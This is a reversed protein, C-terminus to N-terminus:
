FSWAVSFAGRVQNRERSGGSDLIQAFDLRASLSRMFGYRAGLGWSSLGNRHVEGPLPNVRWTTGSDYFSLLRLNGGSLGLTTALEPTYIEISGSLGRDDALERELFGRVSYMGGIGFQEGSVLMDDTYQGNFLGRLQFDGPLAAVANAGYRLVTYRSDAGARAAQFAAGDGNKGGPINHAVQLYFGGEAQAARLTGSYTLGVPHLTIDPVVGAGDLLVQNDFARYDLSASLKQELAGWRPLYYSWRAGLFKGSGSVNFLGQVVGSNVDSYGAAMELASNLEYFPIRYGLGVITVKSIETPSGVIQASISHDSDFLNSNQYGFRLRYDGTASTGTNDLAITFRSPDEEVVRVTADIRDETQGARLLVEIRKSPDESLMQLNRAIDASNPVQGERLAPLSARINAEGFITNGEVSVTGVVPQVVAIRIVGRTIDQEPLLVRVAGYGQDAYLRQLADVASQIDALERNTGVHANVAQEVLEAPLLTNGAVEFRNIDFRPAPAPEVQALAQLALVTAVFVVLIRAIAM